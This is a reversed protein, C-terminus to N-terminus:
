STENYFPKLKLKLIEPLTSKQFTKPDICTHVLQVVAHKNPGQLFEYGLKFSSSSFDIVRVHIEYTEGAKFPRLYDAESHRIPLLYKQDIFWEKWTFGCAQVFGEYADHALIMIHAFFMIGAPDAQHFKITVQTKYVEAM